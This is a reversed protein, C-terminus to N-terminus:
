PSRRPRSDRNATARRTIFIVPSIDGHPSVSKADHGERKKGREDRPEPGRARLGQIEVPGHGVPEPEVAVAVSEDVIGGGLLDPPGREAHIEVGASVSKGVPRIGVPPGHVPDERALAVPAVAEGVFEGALPDVRDGQRNRAELRRGRDGLVDHHLVPQDDRDAVGVGRSLPLRIEPDRRRGLNGHVQRHAPNRGEVLCPLPEVPHLGIDIMMAVDQQRVQQVDQVRRPDIERVHLDTERVDVRRDVGVGRGAQRRIEHGHIRQGTGHGDRSERVFQQRSGHGVRRRDHRLAELRDLVRDIGLDVRGPLGNRIGLLGHGVHLRRDVGQNLGPLDEGTAHVPHPVRDMEGRDPVVPLTVTRDIGLFGPGRKEQFPVIRPCGDGENMQGTGPRGDRPPEQAGVGADLRRVRRCQVLAQPPLLDVGVGPASRGEVLGPGLDVATDTFAAALRRLDLLRFVQDPVPRDVGQEDGDAAVVDGETRDHLAAHERLRAVLDGADVRVEPDQVSQPLLATAPAELEHAQGGQQRVGARGGGLPDVPKQLPGIELGLPMRGRTFEELVGYVAQVSQVPVQVSPDGVRQAQGPFPDVDGLVAVGGQVLVALVAIERGVDGALAVENRRRQPETGPLGPPGALHHGRGQVGLDGPVAQGPRLAVAVHPVHDVPDVFEVSAVVAERVAVTRAIGPEDPEALGQLPLRHDLPGHMGRLGRVLGHGALQDQRPERGVEVRAAIERPRPDRQTRRDRPGSSGIRHLLATRDKEVVAAEVRVGAAAREPVRPGDDRRLPARLGDQVVRAQCCRDQGRHFVPPDEEGEPGPVSRASGRGGRGDHLHRVGPRHERDRPRRFEIHACRGLQRERDAIWPRQVAVIERDVPAVSTRRFLPLIDTRRERDRVDIRRDPEVLDPDDYLIVVSVRRLFTEAHHDVFVGEIDVVVAVAVALDVAVAVVHVLLDRGPRALDAVAPVVVAVAERVFPDAVAIRDGSRGAGPSADGRLGGHLHVPAGGQPEDEVRVLAELHAVNEHVACGDPVRIGIGELGHVPVTRDGDIEGHVLGYEMHGRSRIGGDLRGDVRGHVAVGHDHGVAGVAARPVTEEPGPVLADEEPGFVARLPRDDVAGAIGAPEEDHVALPGLGHDRAERHGPCLGGAEPAPGVQEFGRRGEHVHDEPSVPGRAPGPGVQVPRVGLEDVAHEASVIRTRSLPAADVDVFSRRHEPVAGEERVLGLESGPDTRDRCSRGHHVGDEPVTRQVLHAQAGRGGGYGVARKPAIRAARAIEREIREEHIRVPRVVRRAGRVVVKPEQRSRGAQVAGRVEPRASVRRVQVAVPLRVFGQRHIDAAARAADVIRGGRVAARARRRQRVHAGILPVAHDVHVDVGRARVVSRAPRVGEVAELVGEVGGPRVVLDPHRLPGVPGVGAGSPGGPVPRLGEPDPVPDGEEAAEVSGLRDPGFPIRAEVGHHQAPVQGPVVARIEGAVALVAVVHKSGQPGHVPGRHVAELDPASVGITGAQVRLASPQIRVAARRQDVAAEDPIGRELAAREVHGRRRADCGREADVTLKESVRGHECSRDQRVEVAARHEDVAHEAPVPGLPSASQVGAQAPRDDAVAAKRAIGARLAAARQHDIRRRRGDAQDVADEPGVGTRLSRLDNQAARHRQRHVIGGDLAPGRPYQVRPRGQNPARVVLLLVRDQEHVGVPRVVDRSRGVVIQAQGRARSAIGVSVGRGQGGVRRVQVTVAIRGLGQRQVEVQPGPDIRAQLHPRIFVAPDRDVHIGRRPAQTVSRAPCVGQLRQLIGQGHRKGSVRDEDGLSHVPRIFAHPDRPAVPGGREPQLIADTHPSAERGAGECGLRLVRDRIGRDEGAVQGPVVRRSEAVPVVVTVVHEHRLVQGFPGVELAEDDAPAAGVRGRSIRRCAASAHEVPIGAGRDAVAHEFLVQGVDPAAARDQVVSVRARQDLVADEPVVRGPRLVASGEVVGVGAMRHDAVAQEDVIGGGHAPGDLVDRSAARLEHVDREDAVRRRVASAGEPAPASARGAESVRDEPVIRGGVARAIRQVTAVHAEGVAQAGPRHIGGSAGHVGTRPHERRVREEHVARRAIIMEPGIGRGHVRAIRDGM